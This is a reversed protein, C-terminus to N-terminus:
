NYKPTLGYTKCFEDLRSYFEEDTLGNDWEDDDVFASTCFLKQTRTNFEYSALTCDDGTVSFYWIEDGLDNCKVTMISLNAYFFLDRVPAGMSELWDVYSNDAIRDSNFRVHIM